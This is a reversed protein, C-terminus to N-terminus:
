GISHVSSPMTSPTRRCPSAVRGDGFHQRALWPRWRPRTRPPAGARPHPRHQLRAVATAPTVQRARSSSCRPSNRRDLSGAGARPSRAHRRRVRDIPTVCRAAERARSRGSRSGCRRHAVVRESRVRSRGPRCRASAATRIADSRLQCISASSPKPSSRSWSRRWRRSPPASRRTASTRRRATDRARPRDRPAVAQQPQRREQALALAAGVAPRVLITQLIAELERSQEQHAVHQLRAPLPMGVGAVPEDIRHGPMQGSLSNRKRSCGPYTTGVCAPGGETVCIQRRPRPRKKRAFM